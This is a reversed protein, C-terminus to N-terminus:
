RREESRFRVRKSSWIIDDEDPLPLLGMVIGSVKDLKLFASGANLWIYNNSSGIQEVLAERHLGTENLDIHFWNGEANYSYDIFNESSVWLIRTNQDFHVALIQNDSLGQATTIPEDFRNQYLHFRLIGANETAFYAYNYGETISNIGGTQRYLTWDFAEFRSDPQSLLINFILAIGFIKKM